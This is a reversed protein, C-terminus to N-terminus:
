FKLVFKIEESQGDERDIAVFNDAYLIDGTYPEFEPNRVTVITRQVLSNAGTLNQGSIM